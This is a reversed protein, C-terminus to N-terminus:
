ITREDQITTKLTEFGSNLVAELSFDENYKCFKRVYIYQNM